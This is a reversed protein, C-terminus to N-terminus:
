AVTVTHYPFFDHDFHDSIMADWALVYIIEDTSLPLSFTQPDNAPAPGALITVDDPADLDLAAYVIQYNCGTQIIHAQETLLLGSIDSVTCGNIQIDAIVTGTGDVKTIRSIIFSTGDSFNYKVQAVYVGDTNGTASVTRDVTMSNAGDIPTATLLHWFDVNYDYDTLTAGSTVQLPSPAIQLGFDFSAGGHDTLSIIGQGATVTTIAHITCSAINSVPTGAMDTLRFQYTEGPTFINTDITVNTTDDVTMHGNTLTLPTGVDSWTIGDQSSELQVVGTGGTETIKFNAKLM